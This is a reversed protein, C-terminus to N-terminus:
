NNTISQIINKDNFYYNVGESSLEWLTDQCLLMIPPQKTSSKSYESKYPDFTGMLTIFCNDKTIGDFVYPDSDLRETSVTFVYSTNDKYNYEDNKLSNLLSNNPRFLDDFMLNNLIFNGHSLDYTSFPKDPYTKNDIQLQISTCMPNKSCTLQNISCPFLFAISSCNVLTQTTNCSMNTNTPTQSFSYQDIRQGPIYIKKTSLLDRIQNVKSDKINYGNIYSKAEMLYLQSGNVKGDESDIIVPFPQSGPSQNLMICSCKDGLNSFRCNNTALLLTQVWKDEEVLGSFLCDPLEGTKKMFEVITSMPIPYTVMNKNNNIKFELQLNGSVGNPYSKFFQLPAFDDYKIIVEFEIDISKGYNRELQDFTLYTGPVDPSLKEILEEIAYCGKEGELEEQAKTFYTVASEYIAQSQECIYGRGKDCYFRYHDIAHLGSKFGVYIAPCKWLYESFRSPSVDGRRVTIYPTVSTKIKLKIFSSTFSTLNCSGDTLKLRTFQNPGIPCPPESSDFSLFKTDSAEGNSIIKDVLSEFYQYVDGDITERQVERLHTNM